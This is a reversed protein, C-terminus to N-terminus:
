SPHMSNMAPPGREAVQYPDIGANRFLWHVMPRNEVIRDPPFFGPIWLSSLFEKSLFRM